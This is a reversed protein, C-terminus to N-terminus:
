AGQLRPSLIPDRHQRTSSFHHPITRFRDASTQSRPAVRHNETAPSAGHFRDHSPITPLTTPAIRPATARIQTTTPHFRHSHNAQTADDIDISRGAFTM